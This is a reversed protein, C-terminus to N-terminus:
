VVFVAARRSRGDFVMRLISLCLWSECEAGGM